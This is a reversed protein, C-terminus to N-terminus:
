RVRRRHRPVFVGKGTDVLTEGDIVIRGRQPRVLGAVIDVLGSKGAGSRGFLATVGPQATFRAALHFTGRRHEVDVELSM